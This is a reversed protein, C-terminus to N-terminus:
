HKGSVDFQGNRYPILLFFVRSLKNTRYSCIGFGIQKAAREAKSKQQKAM